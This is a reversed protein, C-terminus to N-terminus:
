ILKVPPEAPQLPKPHPHCSKFEWQGGVVDDVVMRISKKIDDQKEKILDEGYKLLKQIDEEEYSDLALSDTMTKQFRFYNKPLERMMLYDHTTAETSTILAGIQLAWTIKDINKPDIEKTKQEGTGVSIVRVKKQNNAYKSHLYSYFAPNNAIVGGDILVQDGIVKPDFYIPAASSAQSANSLGVSFNGPSRAASFKSFIRPQHSNYEYSIINVENTLADEIKVNGFMEKCIEEIGSRDYSSKTLMFIYPMLVWGLVAFVFGGVIMVIWKRGKKEMYKMEENFIKDEADEVTSLSGTQIEGLLEKQDDEVFKNQISKAVLETLNKNEKGKISQKRSKVLQKLAKISEEFQANVYMKRGVLFGVFLGITTIILVGIIRFKFSMQFKTFVQPARITYVEIAKQAWFKNIVTDNTLPDDNPIVLATALLSGTSTGAVLDFLEAMSIKKSSREEICYEVVAYEYAYTEMYDVVKATILGRIGGGDLSLINWTRGQDETVLARTSLALLLTLIPLTLLLKM